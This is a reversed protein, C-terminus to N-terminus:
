LNTVQAPSKPESLEADLDIDELVEGVHSPRSEVPGSLPEIKTPPSAPEAPPQTLRVREVTPPTSTTSRAGESTPGKGLNRNTWWLMALHLGQYAMVWGM